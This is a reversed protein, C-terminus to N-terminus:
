WGYIMGVLLYRADGDFVGSTLGIKIRSLLIWACNLIWLNNGCIKAKSMGMVKKQEGTKLYFIKKKTKKKIKEDYHFYKHLFILLCFCLFFPIMFISLLNFIAKYHLTTKSGKRLLFFNGQFELFRYVFFFFIYNLM